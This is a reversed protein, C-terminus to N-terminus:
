NVLYIMKHFWNRNTNERNHRWLLNWFRCIQGELGGVKTWVAGVPHMFVGLVGGLRDVGTVVGVLGLWGFERDRPRWLDLVSPRSWWIQVWFQEGCGCGEDKAGWSSVSSVESAVTDLGLM